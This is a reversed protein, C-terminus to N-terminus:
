RKLTLSLTFTTRDYGTDRIEQAIAFRVTTNEEVDVAAGAFWSTTDVTIGDSTDPADAHGGFLAVTGTVLGDARVFYGTRHEGTEDWINIHRVTVWARGGFLYTELGPNVADVDGAQYDAYRVDLTAYVAEFVGDDQFLRQAGGAGVAVRPRFDADPTGGVLVYYSTGGICRGDIRAEVYADFKDFRSAAEVAGGLTWEDDFRYSARLAGERWPDRGHTLDSYAAELDLRWHQADEAQAAATSALVLAALFIRV